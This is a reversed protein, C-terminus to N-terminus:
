DCQICPKDGYGHAAAWELCAEKTPFCPNGYDLSEVKWPATPPCRDMCIKFEEEDDGCKVIAYASILIILMLFYKNKRM